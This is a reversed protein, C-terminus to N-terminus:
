EICYDSADSMMMDTRYAHYTAKKGTSTTFEVEGAYTTNMDNWSTLAYQKITYDKKVPMLFWIYTNDKTIITASSLTDISEVEVNDSTEVKTPVTTDKTVAVYNYYSYSVTISDGKPTHLDDVSLTVTKDNTGDFRISSKLYFEEGSEVTKSSYKEGNDTTIKVSDIEESGKTLSIKARTATVKKGYEYETSIEDGDDDYLSLSVESPAVYHFLLDKIIDAISAQNYVDGRSIGGMTTSVKGSLKIDAEGVGGVSYGTDTDGIWWNGNDGIRPTKGDEGKAKVGLSLWSAGKDYSVYWFNDEFIKLLPTIGALGNVGYRTVVGGEIVGASSIEGEVNKSSINADM